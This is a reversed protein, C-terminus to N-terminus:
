SFTRSMLRWAAAAAPDADILSALRRPDLVLVRSRSELRVTVGTAPGPGGAQDVSGVFSGPALERLRRGAVEVTAAGEILVFCQRGPRHEDALRIGAPLIAEDGAQELAAWSSSGPLSGSVGINM